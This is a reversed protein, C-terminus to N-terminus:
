RRGTIISAITSYDAGSPISFTGSSIKRDMGTRCLYKDFSVANDVLGKDALTRAVADSYSGKAITITVSGAASTAADSVATNDASGQDAVTDGNAAAVGDSRPPAENELTTAAVIDDGISLSM